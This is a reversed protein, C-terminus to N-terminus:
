KVGREGTEPSVEIARTTGWAPDNEFEANLINQITPANTECGDWEVLVTFLASGTRSVPENNMTERM